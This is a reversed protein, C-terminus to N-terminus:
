RLAVKMMVDTQEDNGLRFVHRDFIEFGYKRYFQIAKHNHEWVGLWVFDKNQAKAVALAKEMLQRGIHLGQYKGAVYIREVELGNEQQLETQATGTNVKLYGAPEQEALAFCFVSGETELEELLQVESMKNELYRDMDAATNSAAFTELFTSISIARLRSAEEKKVEIISVALPLM